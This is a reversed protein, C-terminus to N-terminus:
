EDSAGKMECKHLRVVKDEAAPDQTYDLCAIYDGQWETRQRKEIMPRCYKHVEGNVMLYCHNTCGKCSWSRLTM